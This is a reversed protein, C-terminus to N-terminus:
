CDNETLDQREMKAFVMSVPLSDTLIIYRHAHRRTLSSRSSRRGFLSLSSVTKDGVSVKPAHPGARRWQVDRIADTVLVSNCVSQFAGGLRLLQCFAEDGHTRRGIREEKVPKEIHLFRQM